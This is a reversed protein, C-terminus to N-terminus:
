LAFGQPSTVLFFTVINGLFYSTMRGLPPAMKLDVGILFYHVRCPSTKYMTPYFVCCESELASSCPAKDHVLLYATDIIFLVGLFFINDLPGSPSFHWSFFIIWLPSQTSTFASDQLKTSITILPRISPCSWGLVYSHPALVTHLCAVPSSVSSIRGLNKVGGKIM